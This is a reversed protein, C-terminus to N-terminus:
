ILSYNTSVGRLNIIDFHSLLSIGATEVFNYKLKNLKQGFVLNISTKILTHWFTSLKKFYNSHFCESVVGHMHVNDSSRIDNQKM